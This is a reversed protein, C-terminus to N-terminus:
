AAKAVRPKIENRNKSETLKDKLYQLKHLVDSLEPYTRHYQDLWNNFLMKYKPVKKYM